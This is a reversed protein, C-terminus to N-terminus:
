MGALTPGFLVALAGLALFPGFPVMTNRAALGSRVMLLLSAPLTLVFAILVAGVVGWGLTIGLLLVLKVDGVGMWARGALTPLLFLLAAVLGIALRESVRGPFLALQVAILLGSAPLVIRNPIVRRRIDIASLVVLVSAAIAAVIADDTDLIAFALWVLAAVLLALVVSDARV